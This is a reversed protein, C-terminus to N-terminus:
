LIALAVADGDLLLEEVVLVLLLELGKSSASLESCLAKSDPSVEVACLRRDLRRELAGLDSEESLVSLESLLELGASVM